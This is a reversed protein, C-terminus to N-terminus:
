RVAVAASRAPERDPAHGADPRRRDVSGADAPPRPWWDLPGVLAGALALLPPWSNPTPPDLLLARGEDSDGQRPPRMQEDLLAAASDATAALRQWVAQRLPHGAAEAEVAALFGLEAVFCHYDSALERNIGSPFTNHLLERELLRASARRWRESQPFWPFACSAVLQGVAEAVM